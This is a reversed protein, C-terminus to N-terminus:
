IQPRQGFSFAARLELYPGLFQSPLPPYNSNVLAGWVARDFATNGSSSELMLSDNMIHGNRLIRFRITAVGRRGRSGIAEPPFLKEWTSKTAKKWAALYPALNVGRTDSLSAVSIFPLEQQANAITQQEGGSQSQAPIGTAFEVTAVVRDTMGCFQGTITAKGERLAHIGGDAGISIVPSDEPQDVTIQIASLNRPLHIPFDLGEYYAEPELFRENMESGKGHDLTLATLGQHLTFKELGTSTPEVKITYTEIEEAGDSFEVTVELHLEGVQLPTIEITKGTEDEAVVTPQDNGIPTIRHQRNTLVNNGDYQTVYIARVGPGRLKLPIRVPQALEVPREPVSAQVRDTTRVMKFPGSQQLQTSQSEDRAAFAPPTWEAQASLLLLMPPFIICILLRRGNM